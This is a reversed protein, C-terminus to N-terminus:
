HTWGTDQLEKDILGKEKQRHGVLMCELPLNVFHNRADDSASHKHPASIVEFAFYSFFPPATTHKTKNTVQHTAHQEGGRVIDREQTTGGQLPASQVLHLTLIKSATLARATNGHHLTRLSTM